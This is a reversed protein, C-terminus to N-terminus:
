INTTVNSLNRKEHANAISVEYLYCIFQQSRWFKFKDYSFEISITRMLRKLMLRWINLMDDVISFEDLHTASLIKHAKIQILIFKIYAEIPRERRAMVENKKKKNDNVTNPEHVGKSPMGMWANMKSFQCLTDIRLASTWTWISKRNLYRDVTLSKVSKHM